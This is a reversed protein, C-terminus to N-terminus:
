VIGWTVISTGDITTWEGRNNTDLTAATVLGANDTSITIAPYTQAATWISGALSDIAVNSLNHTYDSSGGSSLTIANIEWVVTATAPVGTPLNPAPISLTPFYKYTNTIAVVGKQVALTYAALGEGGIGNDTTVSTSGINRNGFYKKNLPRGM